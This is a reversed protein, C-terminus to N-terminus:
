EYFKNHLKFLAPTQKALFIYIFLALIMIPWFYLHVPILLLFTYTFLRQNQM